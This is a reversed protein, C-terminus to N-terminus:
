AVFVFGGSGVSQFILHGRAPDYVSGSDMVQTSSPLGSLGLSSVSITVPSYNMNTGLVLTESGLKWIGVDVRNITIQRFTASPNLIFRNMKQLGLALTSASAKIDATTPDDWSVVGITINTDQSALFISHRHPRVLHM